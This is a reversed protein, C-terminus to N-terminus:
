VLSNCIHRTLGLVLCNTYNLVGWDCRRMGKVINNQLIVIRDDKNSFVILLLLFITTYLALLGVPAIRAKVPSASNIDLILVLVYLLLIALDQHGQILERCQVM